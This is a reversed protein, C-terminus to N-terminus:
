VTCMDLKNTTHTNQSEQSCTEQPTGQSLQSPNNEANHKRKKARKKPDIKFQQRNETVILLKPKRL